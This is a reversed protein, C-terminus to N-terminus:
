GKLETWIRDYLQNMEDGLDELWDARKLTDEPPNIAPNTRFEEPLLKVAEVNPNGYPYAVSLRASVAPDLLFNIFVEATYKRKSGKPIAMNDMWITAGEVPLIYRFKDSERLLQAAEGSWVIGAQVEGGLLLDKPSDSNFAKINPKLTLLKQKAQELQAPDKSNLPFGLARLAAGTTERADDTVVLQGKFEPRWLDGWSKVTSPDVKETNIVIGTTGWMYPVTHENRADFPLGRFQPGIHSLNPINAHDLKELLGDRVLVTTMYDSPFVVDYGAGGAKLKAHLEENSSYTDYIVKVGYLRKFEKLVSDPLYGTWNFVYLEKDLKSKDVRSDVTPKPLDIESGKGSACGALLSAGLLVASLLAAVRRGKPHKM